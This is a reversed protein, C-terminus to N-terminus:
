VQVNRSVTAQLKLAFDRAGRIKEESAFPVGYGPDHAAYMGAYHLHCHKCYRKMGTEYVDAGKEPPYGCTTLIALYKGEWLAPGRTEGYFKCMMYILRDLAAKMPATCYWGYIPTATVFCDSALIREGIEQMDDHRVCGMRTIDHQCARCAHCPEINKRYLSIISVENGLAELQKAFPRMLTATNGDPRPSAFLICYKM